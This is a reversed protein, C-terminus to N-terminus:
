LKIVQNVDVPHFKLNALNILVELHLKLFKKLFIIRLSLRSPSFKNVFWESSISCLTMRSNVLSVDIQVSMLYSCELQKSTEPLLESLWWGSKMRMRSMLILEEHFCMAFRECWEKSRNPLERRQMASPRSEEKWRGPHKWKSLLRWRTGKNLWDQCTSTWLKRQFGLMTSRQVGWGTWTWNESVFSRMKLSCKM